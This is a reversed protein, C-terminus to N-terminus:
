ISDLSTEPLMNAASSNEVAGAQFYGLFMDVSRHGTLAMAEGLPVGRRGAETVFGSRLSHAGFNGILGALKARNKVIKCVSHDSIADTAKGGRVQRFIPGDRIGSAKLWATLADAARGVIPKNSCSRPSSGMQDTKSHFLNYLYTRSDIRSLNRMMAASAESRRRGGSAWIFLLLARDRLGKLGDTCTALMLELSEATIATKQGPTKGRRAYTRQFSQLLQKVSIDKVPSELKNTFHANSLVALRHRVTSIALPGTKRKCGDSVLLEDIEPPLGHSIKGTLSTRELHDLIFQQVVPISVPLSFPKGYRLQFWSKWYNLADDYSRRTNKSTGENLVELVAQETEPSTKHPDLPPFPLKYKGYLSGNNRAGNKRRYTTKKYTKNM